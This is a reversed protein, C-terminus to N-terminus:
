IAAGDRYTANLHAGRHIWELIGAVQPAAVRYFVRRGERRKALLGHLRMHNLHQSVDHQSRGVYRALVTVNAESHILREVLKLRVPHALVRLTQSAQELVALSLGRRRASETM